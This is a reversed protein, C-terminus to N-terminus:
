KLRLAHIWDFFLLFGGQILVGIGHGMAEEDESGKTSLIWAGAILYLVDLGGNVMLATRLNNKEHELTDTEYADPRRRRTDAAKQGGFAIAGDILGWAQFQTGIGRLVPVGSLWMVVGSAVSFVAWTGLQRSIRRQEGWVTMPEVNVPGGGGHGNYHPPMGIRVPIEPTTPPMTSM